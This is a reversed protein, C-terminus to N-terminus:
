VVRSRVVRATPMQRRRRWKWLPPEPLVRAGPNLAVLERALDENDTDIWLRSPVPWLELRPHHGALREELAKRHTTAQWRRAAIFMAAGVVLMSWWLAAYPKHSLLCLVALGALALGFLGLLAQLTPVMPALLAHGQCDTCVPLPIPPVAGPGSTVPQYDQTRGQADANCCVCCRGFRPALPAPAKRPDQAVLQIRQRM